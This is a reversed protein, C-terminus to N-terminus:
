RRREVERRKGEWREKKKEEEQVKITRGARGQLGIVIPQRAWPLISIPRRGHRLRAIPIQQQEKLQSAPPTQCSGTLDYRRKWCSMIGGMFYEGDPTGSPTPPVLGM